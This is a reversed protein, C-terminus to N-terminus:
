NTPKITPTAKPFDRMAALSIAQLLVSKIEKLPKSRISYEGESEYVDGYFLKPNVSVTKPKLEENVLELAINLQELWKAGYDTTSEQDKNM